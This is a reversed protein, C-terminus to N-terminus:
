MLPLHLCCYDPSRAPENNLPGSFEAGEQLEVRLRWLLVVASALEILSDAGFAVLSLSGAHIGAGISVATEIALWASTLAELWLARRVLHFRAPDAAVPM